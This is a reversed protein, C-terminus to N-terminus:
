AAPSGPRGRKRSALEKFWEKERVPLTLPDSFLRPRPPLEYRDFLEEMLKRAEEERGLAIELCALNYLGAQPTIRRANEIHGCAEELLAEAKSPRGFAAKLTYIRALGSM